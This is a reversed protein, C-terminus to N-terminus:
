FVSIKSKFDIESLAKVLQNCNKRRALERASIIDCFFSFYNENEYFLHKSMLYVEHASIVYETYLYLIKALENYDESPLNSRLYEFLYLENRITPPLTTADIKEFTSTAPQLANRDRLLPRKGGRFKREFGGRGVGPGRPRFEEKEETEMRIPIPNSMENIPEMEEDKNLITEDFISKLYKIFMNYLSPEDEQLLLRLKEKPGDINPVAKNDKIDQIDQIIKILNDVKEPHRAQLEKIASQIDIDIHEDQVVTNQGELLPVKFDEPVLANLREVLDPYEQILDVLQMQSELLQNNARGNRNFLNIFSKLKQPQSDFTKYVGLVFQECQSYLKQQNVIKANMM